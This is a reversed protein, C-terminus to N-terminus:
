QEKENYKYYTLFQLLELDDPAVFPFERRMREVLQPKLEISSRDGVEEMELGGHQKIFDYLSQRIAESRNAYDRWVLMDLQKLLNGPITISIKVAPQRPM